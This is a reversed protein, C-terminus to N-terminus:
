CTKSHSLHYGQYIYQASAKIIFVMGIGYLWWNFDQPIYVESLSLIHNVSFSGHQQILQSSYDWVFSLICIVSGLLLQIVEMKLLPIQQHHNFVVLFYGLALMVLAILIPTIVPGVWTIPILFLVDWTFFSEPWNLWIKLGVYYIIDWIAFAILFYGWRQWKKTSALMAVGALMAITAAERWIEVKVLWIPMEKLPFLFGDPYYLERLYVVVAAELFGMAISFFSIIFLQNKSNKM